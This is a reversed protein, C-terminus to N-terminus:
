VNYHRSSTMGIRKCRPVSDNCAPQCCSLERVPNKNVIANSATDYQVHLPNDGPQFSAKKHLASSWMLPWQWVSVNESFNAEPRYVTPPPPPAAPVGFQKESVQNSFSGGGFSQTQQTPLKKGYTSSGSPTSM